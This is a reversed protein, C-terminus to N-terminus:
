KVVILEVRRAVDHVTEKLKNFDKGYSDFSIRSSDIGMDIYKNYLVDSRNESLKQNYEDTSSTPSAWGKIVLKTEANDELEAYVKYIANLETDRIVYEDHDFFVYESVENECNCDGKVAYEIVKTTTPYVKENYNNIVPIVDPKVYWDAHPLKAKKDLYFTLGVSANYINSNIGTNVSENSGDLKMTQNVNATGSFDGMLAFRDTLKYLMTTGARFNGVTQKYGDGKIFSVGPGGHLLVTFRKSYLDLWKFANVYGELNVRSYKLNYDPGFTRKTIGNIIIPDLEEKLSTKDYGGTLGIGVIENVNYRLGLGYHAFQDGQVATKDGVMQIGYEGSASWKGFQGYSTVSLMVLALILIIKKM